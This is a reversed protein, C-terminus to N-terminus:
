SLSFLKGPNETEPNETEPCTEGDCLPVPCSGEHCEMWEEKEGQHSCDPPSIDTLLAGHHPKPYTCTRFRHQMGSNCSVSCDSWETWKSFAAVVVFFSYTVACDYYFKTLRGSHTSSYNSIDTERTNIAQLLPNYLTYYCINQRYFRLLCM